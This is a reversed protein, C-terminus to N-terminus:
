EALFELIKENVIDPATVQANHNANPIIEAKLGAVLHTARRIVHQPNYIVEHDGILLLIPTQIKRLEDDTYVPPPFQNSPFGSTKGLGAYKTFCEDRPFDQWIWRFGSLIIPASNLMYGLKYPFALHWYWAWIQIFTAAPSILVVKRVREPMYLAATFALM